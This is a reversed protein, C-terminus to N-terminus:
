AARPMGFVWTRWAIALKRLPTLSVKRDLVAYGDREIEELLARYIAAMLLGPRQTRRDQEPLLAFARRYYERARETQFRMLPEFGKSPRRALVDEPIVGFRELEDTPLYLRGRMADEGVDRIINTLQFAVGLEHAYELTRPDVYGFIAASVQGVVGAVRHCYTHLDAFTPYRAIALDMEMGDIVEVFDAHRLGAREIV